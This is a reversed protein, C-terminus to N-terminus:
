EDKKGSLQYKIIKDVRDQWPYLKIDLSNFIGYDIELRSDKPREALSIWDNSSIPTISGFKIKLYDLKKRIYLAVEYWNTYGTNTFHIIRNPSEKILLNFVNKKLIYYIFYALDAASTLAIKQDSVIRLDDLELIKKIINKVFNNNFNSFIASTRIILSKNNNKLINIEGNLKSKGYTNIPKPTVTSSFPGEGQIGFVYDTSIHIFYSGMDNSIKSLLTPGETNVKFVKEAEHEAGDVDTYASFNIIIDPCIDLIVSRVLEENMLNLTESDYLFFEFSKDDLFSSFERGLQSNKGSILVKM